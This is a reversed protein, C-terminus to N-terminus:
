APSNWAHWEALLGLAHSLDVGARDGITQVADRYAAADRLQACDADTLSPLDVNFLQDNIMSTALALRDDLQAPENPEWEIVIRPCIIGDRVALQTCYARVSDRYGEDATNFRLDCFAREGFEAVQAADTRYVNAVLM